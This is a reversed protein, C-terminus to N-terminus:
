RHNPACSARKWATHPQHIVSDQRPAPPLGCLVRLVCLTARGERSNGKDSAARAVDRSAHVRSEMSPTRFLARAGSARGSVLPSSRHVPEDGDAEEM